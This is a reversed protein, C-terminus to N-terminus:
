WVLRKCWRATLAVLRTKYAYLILKVPHVIKKLLQDRTGQARGSVRDRSM